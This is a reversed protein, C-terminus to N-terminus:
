NNNVLEKVKNKDLENDKIEEFYIVVEDKKSLLYLLKINEERLM